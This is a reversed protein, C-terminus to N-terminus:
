FERWQALRLEAQQLSEEFLSEQRSHYASNYLCSLTYSYVHDYHLTTQREEKKEQGIIKPTVGSRQLSINFAQEPYITKSLLKSPTLNQYSRISWTTHLQDLTPVHVMTLTTGIQLPSEQGYGVVPQNSDCLSDLDTLVDPSMPFIDSHTYLLKKTRCDNLAHQYAAAVSDWLGKFGRWRSFHVEV